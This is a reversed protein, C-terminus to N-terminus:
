HTRRMCIAQATGAGVDRRGDGVLPVCDLEMEDLVFMFVDDIAARDCDGHLTIDWELFCIRPELEDLLPM